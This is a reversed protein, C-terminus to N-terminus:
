KVLKLGILSGTDCDILLYILLITCPAHLVVGMTRQGGCAHAYMYMQVYVCVHVCEYVCLLQAGVFCLM